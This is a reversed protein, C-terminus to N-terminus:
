LPCQTKFTLFRKCGNLCLKGTMKLGNRQFELVLSPDQEVNAWFPWMESEVRLDPM